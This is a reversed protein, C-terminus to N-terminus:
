RKGRSIVMDEVLGHFSKGPKQKAVGRDMHADETAHAVRGEITPTASDTGVDELLIESNGKGAGVVIPATNGTTQVNVILNLKNLFGTYADLQSDGQPAQPNDAQGLYQKGLFIQMVLQTKASVMQMQRLSARGLGHGRQFAAQYELHQNFRGQPIRIVHCIEEATLFHSAMGEILGVEYPTPTEHNQVSITRVDDLEPTTDKVRTVVPSLKTNTNKM